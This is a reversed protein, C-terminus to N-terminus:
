NQNRKAWDMLEDGFEPDMSLRAYCLFLMYLSQPLTFQDATNVRFQYGEHETWIVAGTEGQLTDMSIQQMLELKEPDPSSLNGKNPHPLKM